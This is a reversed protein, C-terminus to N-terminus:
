ASLVGRRRRAVAVLSAFGAAVLAATSSEPVSTVPPVGPEMRVFETGFSQASLLSRSPDIASTGAGVVIRGRLDPLAFNTFGNGGFRTGLLSFLAQNQNIALLQGAADPGWSPLDGWAYMNIEGLLQLNSPLCLCTSTGSPYAGTLSMEFTLALSPQLNSIPSGTLVNQTTLTTLDSGTAQGEVYGSLGPGFGAGIPVRGRLDPLAFTSQGDGGYNTGILQFLAGNDANLSLEQGEAFLWGPPLDTGAFAAVAGINALGNSRGDSPFVGEIHIAYRLAITPQRNDLPSGAGGLATPLNPQGVTMTPSGVVTGVPMSATAGVIARGVVDPTGVTSGDLWRSGPPVFDAATMRVFGMADIFQVISLSPQYNNLSQPLTLQAAAPSASGVAVALASLWRVPSFRSRM